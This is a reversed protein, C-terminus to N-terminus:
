KTQGIQFTLWWFPIFNVYRRSQKSFLQWFLFNSSIVRNAAPLLIYTHFPTWLKFSFFFSRSFPSSSLLHSLPLLTRENMYSDCFVNWINLPSFTSPWKHFGLPFFLGIILAVLFQSYSYNFFVMLGLRCSYHTVLGVIYVQAKFLYFPSLSALFSLFLM